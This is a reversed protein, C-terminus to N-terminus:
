HIHLSHGTKTDTQDTGTQKQSLFYSLLASVYLSFRSNVVLCTTREQILRQYGM